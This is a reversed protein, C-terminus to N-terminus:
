ENGPEPGDMADPLPPWVEAMFVDALALLLEGWATIQGGTTADDLVLDAAMVPRGDEDLYARSFRRNVNWAAVAGDPMTGRRVCPFLAQLSAGDDELFVIVHYGEPTSLALSRPDFVRTTFGASAFLADLQPVTLPVPALLRVDAPRRGGCGLVLMLALLVLTPAPRRM